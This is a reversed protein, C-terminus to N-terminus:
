FDPAPPLEAPLAPFNVSRYSCHLTRVKILGYALPLYIFPLGFLALCKTARESQACATPLLPIPLAYDYIYSHASVGIAALMAAAALLPLPLGSFAPTPPEIRDRAM